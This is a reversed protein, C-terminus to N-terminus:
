EGTPGCHSKMQKKYGNTNRSCSKVLITQFQKGASIILLINPLYYFLPKSGLM